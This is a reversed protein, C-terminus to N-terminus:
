GSLHVLWSTKRLGSAFVSRNRNPRNAAVNSLSRLPARYAKLGGVDM